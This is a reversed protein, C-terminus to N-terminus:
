SSLRWRGCCFPGRLAICTLFSAYQYRQLAATVDLGDAAGVARSACWLVLRDLSEGYSVHDLGGGDTRRGRLNLM